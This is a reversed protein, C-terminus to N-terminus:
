AAQGARRRKVRAYAIMGIPIMLLYSVCIGILTIWPESLLATVVLAAVVIVELRVSRRPRLKGWSLTPVNSILLFSIAVLWVGVGIPDAFEEKGTAIWFYM